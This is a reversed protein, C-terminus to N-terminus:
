SRTLALVAELDAPVPMPSMLRVSSRGTNGLPYRGSLSGPAAVTLRVLQGVAEHRDHHRVAQVLMRAHVGVHAIALAPLPYPGTRLPAM